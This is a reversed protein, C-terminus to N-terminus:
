SAAANAFVASERVKNLLAYLILIALFTSLCYALPLPILSHGHDAQALLDINWLGVLYNTLYGFAFSVSILSGLYAALARNGLESKVLGVTAINTAPGVLMFILTAGPSVGSFLLGAAIPTSATACIYMPVGIVAMVVFALFGDGWQLLFENPLYTKIAAAFTLGILLWIVIDRVLDVFTFQFVKRLRIILNEQVPTALNTCCSDEFQAENHMTEILKEDKGVLIGATIASTVAALPRIIAMFPGLLAYSITVSDIGTEPTSILFSTTAAKSAGSRRLALAAPIVGCSCLPLPAGFLAAKITSLFGPKGLHKAMIQNPIFLKMVAAVALGLVLWPAAEIFLATFNEFLLM